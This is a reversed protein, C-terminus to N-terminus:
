KKEGQLLMSYCKQLNKLKKRDRLMPVGTRRDRREKRFLAFPFDDKKQLVRKSCIHTKKFPQASLSLSLSLFARYQHLTSIVAPIGYCGYAYSLLLLLMPSSLMSFVLLPSCTRLRKKEKPSRSAPFHPSSDSPLSSLFSVSSHTHVVDPSRVSDDDHPPARSPPM